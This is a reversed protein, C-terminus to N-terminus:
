GARRGVIMVNVEDGVAVLLGFNDKTVDVADNSSSYNIAEFLLSVLRGKLFKPMLAISTTVTVRKPVMMGVNAQQRALGHEHLRHMVCM